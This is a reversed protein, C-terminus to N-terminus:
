VRQRIEHVKYKSSTFNILLVLELDPTPSVFSIGSRSVLLYELGILNLYLLISKAM